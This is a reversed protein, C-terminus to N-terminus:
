LQSVMRCDNNQCINLVSEKGKVGHYLKKANSSKINQAPFDNRTGQMTPHLTNLVMCLRYGGHWYCVM